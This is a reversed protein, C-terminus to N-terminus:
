SGNKIWNILNGLSLNYLYICFKGFFLWFASIIFVILSYFIVNIKYIQEYFNYYNEKNKTICYIDENKICFNIQKINKESSNKYIIKSKIYGNYNTYKNYDTKDKNFYYLHDDNKIGSIKGIDSEAWMANIGNTILSSISCKKTKNYYNNSLCDKLPNIINEFDNDQIFKNICNIDTYIINDKLLVFEKNQLDKLNSENYKEPKINTWECTRHTQIFSSKFKEKQKERFYLSYNINEHEPAHFIEYFFSNREDALWSFFGYSLFVFSSVLTVFTIRNIKSKLM